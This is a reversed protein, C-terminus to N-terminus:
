YRFRIQYFIFGTKSKVNKKESCKVKKAEKQLGHDNSETGGPAAGAIQGQDVTKEGFTIIDYEYMRAHIIRVSTGRKGNLM